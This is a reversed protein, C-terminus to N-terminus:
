RRIRGPALRHFVLNLLLLCLSCLHFALLGGNGRNGGTLPNQTREPLLYSETISETQATPRASGPIGVCATPRAKSPPRSAARLCNPLSRAWPMPPRLHRAAPPQADSKMSSDAYQGLTRYVVLDGRPMIPVIFSLWAWISHVSVYVRVGAFIFVDCLIKRSRWAPRANRAMLATATM